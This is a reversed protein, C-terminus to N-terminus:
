EYVRRWRLECAGIRDSKWRSFGEGRVGYYQDETLPIVGGAGLAMPDPEQMRWAAQGAPCQPSARDDRPRGSRDSSKAVQSRRPRNWVETM